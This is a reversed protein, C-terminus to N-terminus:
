VEAGAVDQGSIRMSARETDPPFNQAFAIGNIWPAQHRQYQDKKWFRGLQDGM